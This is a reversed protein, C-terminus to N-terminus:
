ARSLHDGNIGAQQRMTDDNPGWYRHKSVQEM